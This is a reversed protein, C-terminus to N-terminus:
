RNYLLVKADYNGQADQSGVIMQLDSCAADDMLENSFKNSEIMTHLEEGQDISYWDGRLHLPFSGNPCAGSIHVHLNVM